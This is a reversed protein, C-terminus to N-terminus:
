GVGRPVLGADIVRDVIPLPQENPVLFVHPRCTELPLGTLDLALYHTVRDVRRRTGYLAAALEAPELTGPALDTFYQGSGYRADGRRGGAGRPVSPNMVGSALIGALGAETTYHYHLRGDM